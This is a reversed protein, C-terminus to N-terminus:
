YHSPQLEICERYIWLMETVGCGCKNFFHLWKNLKTRNLFSQWTGTLCHSIHMNRCWVADSSVNAVDSKSKLVLVMRQQETERQRIVGRIDNKLKPPTKASWDERNKGVPLLRMRQFRAENTSIQRSEHSLRPGYVRRWKSFEEFHLASSSARMLLCTQSLWVPSCPGSWPRISAESYFSMEHLPPCMVWQVPKWQMEIFNDESCTPVTFIFRSILLRQDSHQQHIRDAGWCATIRSIWLFSSGDKDKLRSWYNSIIRSSCSMSLCTHTETQGQLVEIKTAKTKKPLSLGVQEEQEM